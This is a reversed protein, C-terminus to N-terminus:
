VCSPTTSHVVRSGSSEVSFRAIGPETRAGGIALCFSFAMEHDILYIESSGVLVNPNERRRDPNEILCDFAFVELAPERLESPIPEDAGWTPVGAKYKSGFNLGESETLLRASESDTLQIAGALEATIQVAAPEPTLLGLQQALMSALGEFAFAVAGAQL